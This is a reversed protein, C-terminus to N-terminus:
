AQSLRLLRRKSLVLNVLACKIFLHHANKDLGRYRVKRYGFQRKMVHFVHEVKSRVKSKTRNRAREDPSLSRYRSGKKQTFDKAKPAYERLVAQQGSYASDGWVRTEEGHLLDDLVQSDHVNAATAVVSHILKSRSDVGLHAKMGFYWQKGKRTQHMEPDRSKAKNKTSSPASIISADVITGRSLKMGNEELYVNVLRFLEDGLNHREMLHRFKCITTEDPVPEQGLDIGVFKRMARSDYLAEEAGPDSLEFWHQLFHIRLMREAGKPRRGAGKPKPYFPEIAATLEQWPIIQDMDDLFVEKRTKKRYKEFSGDALSQQRM